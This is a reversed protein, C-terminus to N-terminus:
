PEPPPPDFFPGMGTCTEVSEFALGLCCFLEEELLLLPPWGEGEGLVPVREGAGMMEWCCGSTDVLGAIRMRMTLPEEPTFAVEVMVEEGEVIFEM